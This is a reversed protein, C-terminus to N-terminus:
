VRAHDETVFQKVGAAVRVVVYSATEAGSGIDLRRGLRDAAPKELPVTSRRGDRRRSLAVNHAIWLWTLVAVVMTSVGVIMGMVRVDALADPRDLVRWWLLAFAVWGALVLVGHWARSRRTRYSQVPQQSRSSRDTM